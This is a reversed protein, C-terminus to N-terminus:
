PNCPNDDCNGIPKCQCIMCDCTQAQLPACDTCGYYGVQACDSTCAASFDRCEFLCGGLVRKMHRKDLADGILTDYEAKAQDVGGRPRIVDTSVFVKDTSELQRLNIVWDRDSASLDRRWAGKLRCRGQDTFVAIRILAGRVDAPAAVRARVTLTKDAASFDGAVSVLSFPAHASELTALEPGPDAALTATSLVFLSVLVFTMRM